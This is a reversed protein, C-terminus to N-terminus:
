TSKRRKAELHGWPTRERKGGSPFESRRAWSDFADANRVPPRAKPSNGAVSGAQRQAQLNRRVSQTFCYLILPWLLLTVVAVAVGTYKTAELTITTIVWLLGIIYGTQGLWVARAATRTAELGIRPEWTDRRSQLDRERWAPTLIM